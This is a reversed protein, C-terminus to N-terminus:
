NEDEGEREKITICGTPCIKVCKGCGVCCEKEVSAYCGRYVSIANRPCEKVCAGCAACVSQDFDAVRKSLM